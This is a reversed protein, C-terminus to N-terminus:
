EGNYYNNSLNKCTVKTCIENLLDMYQKGMLESNFKTSVRENGRKGMKKRLRTDNLLMEIAKSLARVDGNPVLIGSKGDEVIESLAGTEFSIVPKGMAMAEIAVMGFSEIWLSPMVFIDFESLVKPIQRCAGYFFVRNSIGIKHVMKELKNRFPGDGVIIFVVNQYRKCVAAAAEIFLHIGKYITLRAVTGIVIKNKVWPFLSRREDHYITSNFLNLDVGNYIVKIKDPPIRYKNELAVKVTNSVAVYYAIKRWAIRNFIRMAMSKIIGGLYGYVIYPNLLCGGGHESVLIRSRGSIIAAGIALPSGTLHVVDFNQKRLIALLRNANWIDIFEKRLGLVWTRVGLAEIEKRIPGEKSLFCVEQYFNTKKKIYSVLSTLVIEAGGIDGAWIVHLIKLIRQENYCQSSVKM